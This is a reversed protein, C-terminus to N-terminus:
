RVYHPAEPMEGLRIQTAFYSVFFDLAFGLFRELKWCQFHCLPHMCCFYLVGDDLVSYCDTETEHLITMAQSLYLSMGSGFDFNNGMVVDVIAIAYGGVCVVVVVLIL